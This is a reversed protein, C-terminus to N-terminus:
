IVRESNPTFATFSRLILADARKVRNPPPTPAHPTPVSNVGGRNKKYIDEM